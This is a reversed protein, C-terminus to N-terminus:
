VKMFKYIIQNVFEGLLVCDLGFNGFINQNLDTM